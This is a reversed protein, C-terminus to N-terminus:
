SRLPTHLPPPTIVPPIEDRSQSPPPGPNMKWDLSSRPASSPEYKAKMQWGVVGGAIVCAVILVVIGTIVTRMYMGCCCISKGRRSRGDWASGSTDSRVDPDGIEGMCHAEGRKPYRSYTPLPEEHPLPNVDPDPFIDIAISHHPPLIAPPPPQHFTYPRPTCSPINLNTPLLPFSAPRTAPLTRVPSIVTIVPSPPLPPPPPSPSRPTSPSPTPPTLSYAPPESRPITEDPTPDAVAVPSPQQAPPSPPTLGLVQTSTSTSDLPPASPSTPIPSPVPANATPIIEEITTSVAPLREGSVTGTGTGTGHVEEMSSATTM